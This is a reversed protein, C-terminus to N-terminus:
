KGDRSLSLRPPLSSAFFFLFLLSFKQKLSPSLSPLLPAFDPPLSSWERVRARTRSLSLSLTLFNGDERREEPRFFKRRSLSPSLPLSLPLLHAPSSRPLSLFFFFFFRRPLSLHTRFLSSPPSFAGRQPPSLPSSLSLFFSIETAVSIEPFLSISLSSLSPSRSLPFRSFSRSFFSPFSSLALSLFSLLPLLFRGGGRVCARARAPSLPLFFFLLLLSLSLSLSKDALHCGLPPCFFLNHKGASTTGTNSVKFLDHRLRLLPRALIQANGYLDHWINVRFYIMYPYM